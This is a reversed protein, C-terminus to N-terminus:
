ILCFCLPWFCMCLPFELCFPCHVFMVCVHVHVFAFMSAVYAIFLCPTFVCVSIVLHHVTSSLPTLLARSTVLPPLVSFFVSVSLSCCPFVCSFKYSVHPCPFDFCLVCCLPMSILYLFSSSVFGYYRFMVYLCSDLMM